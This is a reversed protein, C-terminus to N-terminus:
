YPTVLMEGITYVRHYPDLYTTMEQSAEFTVTVTAGRESSEESEVLTHGNSDEVVFRHREGDLNRWTLEVSSGPKMRLVPNHSGRIQEPAVGRWGSSEAGLEFSEAASEGSPPRTRIELNTCGALASLSTGAALKMATRRDTALTRDM